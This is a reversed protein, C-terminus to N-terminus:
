RPGGATKANRRRPPRARVPAPGAVSRWVMQAPLRAGPMDPRRMEGHIVEGRRTGVFRVAFRDEWRDFVSFAEGKYHTVDIEASMHADRFRYRGVYLYQGDGGALKGASLVVIGSHKRGDGLRSEITWIDGSRLRL